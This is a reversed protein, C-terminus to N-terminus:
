FCKMAESILLITPFFTTQPLLFCFSGEQMSWFFNDLEGNNRVKPRLWCWQKFAALPVLFLHHFAAIRRQSDDESKESKESKAGPSEVEDTQKVSM